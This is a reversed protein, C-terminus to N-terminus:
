LWRHHKLNFVNTESILRFRENLSTVFDFPTIERRAPVAARPFAAEKGRATFSGAM